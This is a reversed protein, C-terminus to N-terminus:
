CPPPGVGQPPCPTLSNTKSFPDSQIPDQIKTSALATDQFNRGRQKRFTSWHMTLATGNPTQKTFFARLLPASGAIIVTANEICCWLVLSMANYTFDLRDPLHKLEITKVVSAIFALASLGLLISIGLKLRFSISLTWVLTTSIGTLILDTASNSAGLVYGIYAQINKDWCKSPFDIPDWLTEVRQCQTFITISTVANLILTQAILVYFIWRCSGISGGFLHLMLMMLSVRGLTSPMISILQTIFQLRMAMRREDPQLYFFHRGFGYVHAVQNLSVQVFCLLIALVMIADGWGFKHLIKAQAYVRAGVVIGAIGYFVWCVALIPVGADVDPGDPAPIEPVAM